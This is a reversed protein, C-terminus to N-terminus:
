DSRKAPAQARLAGITSETATDCPFNRAAPRAIIRAVVDAYSPFVEVSGSLCGPIPDGRLFPLIYKCKVRPLDFRLSIRVGLCIWTFRRILRSSKLRLTPNWRKDQLFSDATAASISSPFM